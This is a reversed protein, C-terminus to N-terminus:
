RDAARTLQELILGRVWASAQGDGPATARLRAADSARLQVVFKTWPDAVPPRGLRPKPTGAPITMGDGRLYQGPSAGGRIQRKANAPTAVSRVIAGM